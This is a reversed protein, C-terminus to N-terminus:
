TLRRDGCSAAFDDAKLHTSAIILHNKETKHKAEIVISVLNEKANEKEPNTHEVPHVNIIEFSDRVM